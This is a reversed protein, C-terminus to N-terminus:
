TSGRPSCGWANENSALKISNRIGHEREVEKVPKGPTYPTIAKINDRFKFM